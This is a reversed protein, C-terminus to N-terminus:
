GGFVPQPSGTRRNVLDLIVAVTTVRAAPAFRGGHIEALRRPLLAVADSRRTSASSERHKEGRHSYRIWYIDGRQYVGGQGKSASM